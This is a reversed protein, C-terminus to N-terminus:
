QEFAWPFALPLVLAAALIALVFTALCGWARYPRRPRRWYGRLVSYWPGALQEFQDRPLMPGAAHAIAAGHVARILDERSAPLLYEGIVAAAATAVGVFIATTMWEGSLAGILPGSVVSAIAVIRIRRHWRVGFWSVGSRALADVVHDRAVDHGAPGLLEKAARLARQRADANRETILELSMLNAFSRRNRWIVDRSAEAINRAEESTLTEVRALFEDLTPRDVPTVFTALPDPDSM